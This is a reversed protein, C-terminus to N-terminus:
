HCFVPKRQHFDEPCVSLATTSGLPEEWDWFIRQRCHFCNRHKIRQCGSCEIYVPPRATRVNAVFESGNADFCPACFRLRLLINSTHVVARNITGMSIKCCHCLRHARQFATTRPARTVSAGCCGCTTTEHYPEASASDAQLSGSHPPM